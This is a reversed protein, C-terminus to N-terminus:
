DDEAAKAEQRIEEEKEIADQLKEEADHMDEDSAGKERLSKVEAEAKDTVKEAKDLREIVDPSDDDPAEVEKPQEDTPENSSGDNETPGQGQTDDNAPVDEGQDGNTGDNTGATPGSAVTLSGGTDPDSGGAAAQRTMVIGADDDSAENPNNSATNRSPGFISWWPTDVEIFSRKVAGDEACSPHLVPYVTDILDGTKSYVLTPDPSCNISTQIGPLAQDTNDRSVLDNWATCSALVPFTSLLMLARKM